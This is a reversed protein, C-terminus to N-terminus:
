EPLQIILHTTFFGESNDIKFEHKGHYILMLRRKVNELGIGSGERNGSHIASFDTNKVVFLLQRSIIKLHISISSEDEFNIGYKFANEVMPLLLFPAIMVNSLDGEKVFEFKIKDHKAIKMFSLRIYHELYDVENTLRVADTNSEYVMYRMMASLSSIGQTLEQHGTERAMFFLNNLVNFLFHPQVQARLFNLETKLNEERLLRKVQENQMWELVFFYAYSIGLIAGYVALMSFFVYRLEPTASLEVVKHVLIYTIIACCTILLVLFGFYQFVKRTQLFQPLLLYINSYFIIASMGLTTYLNIASNTTYQKRITIGNHIEVHEITQSVMMKQLIYYLMGWFIIHAVCLLLTRITM